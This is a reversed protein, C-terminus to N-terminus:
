KQKCFWFRRLGHSYQKNDELKWDYSHFGSNCRDDMVLEYDFNCEDLIEEIAKQSPRVGVKNFAQDYGDENTNVFCSDLSNIVETELVLYTCSKTAEKLTKQYDKLHYLVGMHFIIDYKGLPWNNDLDSQLTQVKPYRKKCEILYEQVADSCTVVANHNAFHGGIDGYGCGIELISKANFFKVSYYNEIAKIRKQRWDDYHDNFM